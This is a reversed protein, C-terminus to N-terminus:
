GTHEFCCCLNSRNWSPFTRRYSEQSPWQCVQAFLLAKKQAPLNKRDILTQFSLKWDNYRLPDGSFIAPESIPIRNATNAEAFARVLDNSTENTFTSFQPIHARTVSDYQPSCSPQNLTATVETHNLSVRIVKSAKLMFKCGQKHQM